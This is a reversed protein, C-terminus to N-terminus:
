CRRGNEEMHCGEDKSFQTVSALGNIFFMLSQWLSFNYKDLDMLNNDVKMIEKNYRIFHSVIATMSLHFARQIHKNQDENEHLGM